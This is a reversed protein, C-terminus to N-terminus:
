VMVLIKLTGLEDPLWCNTKSEKDTTTRRRDDTLLQVHKVEQFSCPRNKVM